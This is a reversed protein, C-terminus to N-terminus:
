KGMYIYLGSDSEFPRALFGIRPLLALTGLLFLLLTGWAPHPRAAARPLSALPIATMYALDTRRCLPILPFHPLSHNLCVPRNCAQCTLHLLRSHENSFPRRWRPSSNKASNWDIPPPPAAVWNKAR